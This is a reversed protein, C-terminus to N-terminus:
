KLFIVILVGPIVNYFVKFININTQGKLFILMLLFQNFISFLVVYAIWDIGKDYVLYSGMIITTAYVSQIFLLQNFCGKSKLISAIINYSIRFFVSLILIEFLPIVAHWQNGLLLYIILESNIKLIVSLPIIIVALIKIVLYTMKNIKDNNLNAKVLTSFGVKGLAQAILNTSMGVIRYSKSYIGLQTTGIFKQIIFYDGNLAFRNLLNTLTISWFDKLFTLTILFNLKSIKIKIFSFILVLFHTMAYGVLISIFNKTYLALIISILVAIFKSKAELTALHSFNLEKNISALFVSSIAQFFLTFSFIQLLYIHETLNFFIGIQKNFFNFILIIILAYSLNVAIANFIVRERHNQDFDFLIFNEFTAKYFVTSINLILIIIAIIGFENPTFIRALITTSLFRIFFNVISASLLWIVGTYAKKFLFNM